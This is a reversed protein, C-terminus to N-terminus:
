DNEHHPSFYRSPISLEFDVNPKGLLACACRKKVYQRELNNVKISNKQGYENLLSVPHGQGIIGSNNDWRGLVSYLVFTNYHINRSSATASNAIGHQHPRVLGFCSDMTRSNLAKQNKKRTAKMAYTQPKLM